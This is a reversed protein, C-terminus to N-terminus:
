DYISKMTSELTLVTEPFDTKLKKHLLLYENEKFAQLQMTNEFSVQICYTEDTNPSDLVKLFRPTIIGSYLPIQPMFQKNIWGSLELHSEPAILLTINLTLM